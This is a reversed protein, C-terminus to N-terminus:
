LLKAADKSAADCARPAPIACLEIAKSVDVGGLGGVVLDLEAATLERHENNNHSM